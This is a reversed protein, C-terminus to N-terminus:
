TEIQLNLIDGIEFNRSVFTVSDEEEIKGSCGINLSCYIVNGM